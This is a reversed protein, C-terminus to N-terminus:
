QSAGRQHYFGMYHMGIFAPIASLPLAVASVPARWNRLFFWVVIVALVAGEYLMTM